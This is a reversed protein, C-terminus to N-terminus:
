AGEAEAVADYIAVAAAQCGRGPSTDRPYYDAVHDLFFGRRWADVADTDGDMHPPYADCYLADLADGMLTDATTADIGFRDALIDAAANTATPQQSM